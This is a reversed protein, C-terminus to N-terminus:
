AGRDSRHLDAEASHFRCRDKGDADSSLRLAVGSARLGPGKRWRARDFGEGTHNRLNPKCRRRAGERYGWTPRSGRDDGGRLYESFLRRGLGILSKICDMSDTRKPVTRKWSSSTM